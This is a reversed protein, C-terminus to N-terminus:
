NLFVAYEKHIIKSMGTKNEAYKFHGLCQYKTEESTFGLQDIARKGLNLLTYHCNRPYRQAHSWYVWAIQASTTYIYYRENTGLYHETVRKGGNLMPNSFGFRHLFVWNRHPFLIKVQIQQNDVRDAM